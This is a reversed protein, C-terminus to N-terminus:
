FVRLMGAGAALERTEVYCDACLIALGDPTPSEDTWEWGNAVFVKHCEDCWADRLDDPGESEACNFGIVRDESAADGLHKCVYTEPRLGHSGCEVSDSV